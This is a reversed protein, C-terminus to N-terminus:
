GCTVCMCPIMRNCVRVPIRQIVCLCTGRNIFLPSNRDSLLQHNYNSRVGHGWTIFSPSITSSYSVTVCSQCFFFGWVFGLRRRSRRRISGSSYITTSMSVPSFTTFCPFLNKQPRAPDKERVVVDYEDVFEDEESPLPRTRPHIVRVSARRGYHPRRACMIGRTKKSRDCESQVRVRLKQRRCCLKTFRKPVTDQAICPAVATSTVTRTTRGNCRTPAVFTRRACSM